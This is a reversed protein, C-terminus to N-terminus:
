DVPMSVGTWHPAHAVAQAGSYPGLASLGSREAETYTDTTPEPDFDPNLGLCGCVVWIAVAAVARSIAMKARALCSLVYM